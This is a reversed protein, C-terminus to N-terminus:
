SGSRAPALAPVEVKPQNGGRGRGPAQSPISATPVLGPQQAAATLTASVIADIDPTPTPEAPRCASLALALLVAVIAIGPFSLKTKHM